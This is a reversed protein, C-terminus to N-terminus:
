NKMRKKSDINTGHELSYLFKNIDEKIKALIIYDNIYVMLLVGERKFLCFNIQSRSFGRLELGKELWNYWNFSANKIGYLNNILKLCYTNNTAGAPASFFARFEM